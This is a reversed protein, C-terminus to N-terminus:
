KCVQEDVVHHVPEPVKKLHWWKNNEAVGLTDGAFPFFM